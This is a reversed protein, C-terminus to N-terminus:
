QLNRAYQEQIRLHEQHVIEQRELVSRIEIQVQEQFHIQAQQHQQVQNNSQVEHQYQSQQQNNERCLRERTLDQELLQARANAEMVATEAARLSVVQQLRGTNLEKELDAKRIAAEKDAREKAFRIEVAAEASQM